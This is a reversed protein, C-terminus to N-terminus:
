SDGEDVESLYSRVEEMVSSDTVTVAVNEVPKEGAYAAVVNLASQNGKAMEVAQKFMALHAFTVDAVEIGFFKAVPELQNKPLPPKGYLAETAIGRLCKKLPARAKRVEVSRRSAEAATTRNFYTGKGIQEMVEKSRGRPM